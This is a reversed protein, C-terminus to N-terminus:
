IRVQGFAPEVIPKEVLELTGPQTAQVAKYTRSMHKGKLKTKAAVHGNCDNVERTQLTGLVEKTASDHKEPMISSLLAASRLLSVCDPWRGRNSAGCSDPADVTM